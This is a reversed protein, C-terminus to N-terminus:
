VKGGILDDVFVNVSEAGFECNTHAILSQRRREDLLLHDLSDALAVANCPVILGAEGNKLQERAGNFDTAIIPKKFVRAEAM